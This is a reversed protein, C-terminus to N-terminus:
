KHIRMDFVPAGGDIEEEHARHEEGVFSERAHLFILPAAEDGDRRGGNFLGDVAQEERIRNAGGDGTKGLSEGVFVGRVADGHVVDAGAVRAGGAEVTEGGRNGRAGARLGFFNKGIPGALDGRAADARRLFKGGDNSEECRIAGAVNVARGDRDIASHGPAEELYIDSERLRKCSEVIGSVNAM